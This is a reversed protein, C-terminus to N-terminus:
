ILMDLKDLVKRTHMNDMTITAISKKSDSMPCKWQAKNVEDGFVHKNIIIEIHDVFKIAAAREGEKSLKTANSLGEALLTEFIKIGMCNEAHLICPVMNLLVFMAKASREQGLQVSPKLKVYSWEEILRLRLRSQRDTKTGTLADLGRIELDHTVKKNYASCISGPTQMTLVFHISSPNNKSLKKTVRPNESFLIQSRGRIEDIEEIMGQFVNELNALDEELAKLVDETLMKYHYCKKNVDKDYGLLCCWRCEDKDDNPVAIHDNLIGCCHCSYDCNKMAGGFPNMKWVASM